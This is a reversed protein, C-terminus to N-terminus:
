IVLFEVPCKHQHLVETIQTAIWVIWLVGVIRAVLKPQVLQVLEITVEGGGLHNFRENSRSLISLSKPRLRPRLVRLPLSPILWELQTNIPDCGGGWAPQGRPSGPGSATRVCRQPKGGSGTLRM